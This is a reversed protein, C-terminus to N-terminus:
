DDIMMQTERRKKLLFIPTSSILITNLFVLNPCVNRKTYIEKTVNIMEILKLFVMEFLTIKFLIM